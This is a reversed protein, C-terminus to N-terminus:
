YEEIRAYLEDLMDEVTFGKGQADRYVNLMERVLNHRQSEDISNYLEVINHSGFQNLIKDGVAGFITVMDEYESDTMNYDGYRQEFSARQKSLNKKEERSSRRITQLQFHHFSQFESLETELEAKRKTSFRMAFLSKKGVGYHEQISEIHQRILDKDRIGKMGSIKQQTESINLLTRRIEDRLQRVTLGREKSM